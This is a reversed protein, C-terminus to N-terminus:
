ALRINLICQYQGIQSDLIELTMYKQSSEKWNDENRSLFSVIM